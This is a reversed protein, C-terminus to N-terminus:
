IALKHRAIFNFTSVLIKGSVKLEGGNKLMENNIPLFSGTNTANRTNNNQLLYFIVNVVYMTIITVKIIEYFYM